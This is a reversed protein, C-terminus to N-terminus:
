TSQRLLDLNYIDRDIRARTEAEELLQVSIRGRFREGWVQRAESGRTNEVVSWYRHQKGDNRIEIM